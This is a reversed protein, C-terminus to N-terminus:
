ARADARGTVASRQAHLWASQLLMGSRWDGRRWAARLADPDILEEDVGVGDWEAIFRQTAPDTWITRYTAAVAPATREPLSPALLRRFADPSVPALWGLEHALAAGVGPSGWAFVFRAEQEAALREYISLATPVCARAVARQGAIGARLPGAILDDVALQTARARAAARLYPVDMGRAIPGSLRRRIPLPALMALAQMDRHSLRRAERIHHVARVARAGRALTWGEHLSHGAVLTAGRAAALMPVFLYALSPFMSGHRRLCDQAVPGLLGRLETIDPRLWDSMGLARVVVEAYPDRDEDRLQPTIAVPAAAGARRAAEVAASAAIATGDDGSVWVLLPGSAAAPALDGVLTEYVGLSARARPPEPGGFPMGCATEIATLGPPTLM